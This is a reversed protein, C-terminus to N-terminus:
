KSLPESQLFRSVAVATRAPDEEMPIHGLEDFMVLQSGPIDQHFLAAHAAPIWRDRGGWIILTPVKVDKMGQGDFVLASMLDSVAARSKERRMMDHYRQIQADTVNERSGYVDRVSDAVLFYPSLHATINRLVPMEMLKVPLPKAHPYGASDVLILKKVQEPHRVAYRWSIYGGLSNGGLYFQNLELKAVLADMFNQLEDPSMQRGVLPGTIAFPPIDVAIVRYHRGLYARWGDWTDASAAFGHLLLLPEGRGSEKVRVQTGLVEIYTSDQGYKAKLEAVPIDTIGLYNRGLFLGLLLAIFIGGGWALRKM